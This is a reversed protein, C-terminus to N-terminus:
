IYQREPENTIQERNHLDGWPVGETLREKFKSLPKSCASFVAICFLNLCARSEREGVLALASSWAICFAILVGGGLFSLSFFFAGGLSFTHFLLFTRPPYFRIYNPIAFHSLSTSGHLSERKDIERKGVECDM